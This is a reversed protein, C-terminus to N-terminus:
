GTGEILNRRKNHGLLGGVAAAILPLVLGALTGWASDRVTEFAQNPDIQQTAQQASQGQSQAVNAIDGVNSGIAGVVNAVGTGTLWLLLALITVGVMLGNIMGSGAGGVAATKAAVWGGLFFAIIASLAGWIAAGIGVSEGVERPELASAGIALGLVTLILLTAIATLVGAIIPGWQVRNRVPMVDEGVQTGSHSGLHRQGDVVPREGVTRVDTDNREGFNSSM